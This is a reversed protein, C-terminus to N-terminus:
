AWEGVWRKSSKCYQLDDSIALKQGWGGVEKIVYYNFPGKCFIWNLQGLSKQSSTAQNKESNFFHAPFNLHKCSRAPDECCNMWTKLIRFVKFKGTNDGDEKVTAQDSKQSEEKDTTSLKRM